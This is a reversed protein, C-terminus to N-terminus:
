DWGWVGVEHIDLTSSATLSIYNEAMGLWNDCAIVALVYEGFWCSSLAFNCFARSEFNLMSRKM